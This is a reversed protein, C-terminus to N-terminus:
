DKRAKLKALSAQDDAIRREITARASDVEADSVALEAEDPLGDVNVISNGQYLVSGGNHIARVMGARTLRGHVYDGAVAGTTGDTTQPKTSVPTTGLQTSNDDKAKAM